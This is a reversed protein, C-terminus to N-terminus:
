LSVIAISGVLKKIQPDDRNNVVAGLVFLQVFTERYELQFPPVERLL